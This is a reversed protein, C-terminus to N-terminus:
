VRERHERGDLSHHVTVWGTSGDERHVGDPTPGCVCDDALTHEVVDTVPHVHVGIDDGSTVLWGANV